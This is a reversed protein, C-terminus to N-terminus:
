YKQIQVKERFEALRIQGQNYADLDRKQVRLIFRNPKNSSSGRKGDLDVAVVISETDRLPRLTHSYDGVIELLTNPFDELSDQKQGNIWIQPQWSLNPLDRGSKLREIIQGLELPEQKGDADEKLLFVAGVGDLYAGYTKGGTEFFHHYKRDLAADMINAMVDIDKLIQQNEPEPAMTRRSFENKRFEEERFAVSDHKHQPTEFAPAPKTNEQLAFDSGSDNMDRNFRLAVLVISTLLFLAAFVFGWRFWPRMQWGPSFWSKRGHPKEEVFVLKLDPEEVPWARLLRSTQSLQELEQRCHPCQVLHKELGELEEPTMEKYLYTILQERSVNCKM